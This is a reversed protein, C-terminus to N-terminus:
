EGEPESAPPKNMALKPAMEVVAAAELLQPSLFAQSLAPAASVPRTPLIPVYNGLGVLLSNHRLQPSTPASSNQAAPPSGGPQLSKSRQVRRGPGSGEVLHKYNADVVWFMGKGPEGMSRPVKRFAKNLSLNHRISNQWGSVTYRFYPYKEALYQYIGSLTLRKEETSNIAEAILCAYSLPPKILDGVDPPPSAPENTATPSEAESGASGEGSASSSNRKKPVTAQVSADEIVRKRHKRRVMTANGKSREGRSGALPPYQNHFQHATPHATPPKSGGPRLSLSSLSDMPLLFYFEVDEVQILSRSILPIPQCFPEHRKGAVTVGSKGFCYLEWCRESTSYEIRLHKRSIGESTGLFVDVGGGTSASGPEPCRGLTIALEQVYYEWTRGQLKAYARVPAPSLRALSLASSEEEGRPSSAPLPALLRQEALTRPAHKRIPPPAGEEQSFSLLVSALRAQEGTATAGETTPHNGGTNGETPPRALADPSLGALSLSEQKPLLAAQM